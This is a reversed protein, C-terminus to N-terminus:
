PTWGTGLFIRWDYLPKGLHDVTFSDVVDLTEFHTRLFEITPSGDPEDALILASTGTFDRGEQWYDWQSHEPSLKVVDATGLAFGLQATTSYRTAALLTEPHAARQATM